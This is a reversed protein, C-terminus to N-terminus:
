KKYKRLDETIISKLDEMVVDKIKNAPYATKTKNLIDLKITKGHREFGKDYWEPLVDSVDQADADESTGTMHNNFYGPFVARTPRILGTDFYVKVTYKKNLGKGTKSVRKQISNLLDFTRIYYYSQPTDYIGEKVISRMKEHMDDSLKEVAIDTKNLSM